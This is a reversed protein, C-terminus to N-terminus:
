LHGAKTQYNTIFVGNELLPPINTVKNRNIIKNLTPWHAKVDNAPDSLKERLRLFYKEKTSTFM